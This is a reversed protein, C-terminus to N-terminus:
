YVLKVERFKLDDRDIMQYTKEYTYDKEELGLSDLYWRVDVLNKVTKNYIRVITGKSLSGYVPDTMNKVEKWRDMRAAGYNYLRMMLQYQKNYLRILTQVKKRALINKKEKKSIKGVKSQGYPHKQMGKRNSLDRIPILYMGDEYSADGKPGVENKPNEKGRPEVGADGKPFEEKLNKIANEIIKVFDDEGISRITISHYIDDMRFDATFVSDNGGNFSGAKSILVDQGAIKSKKYSELAKEYNGSFPGRRYVIDLGDKSRMSTETFLYPNTYKKNLLEYSMDIDLKRGFIRELSEKEKAGDIESIEGEPYTECSVYENVVVNESAEAKTGLIALSLACVLIIKKM